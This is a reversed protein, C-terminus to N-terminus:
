MMVQVEGHFGLRSDAELLPIMARFIRQQDHVIVTMEALHSKDNEVYLRRRLEFFHLLNLTGQFQYLLLKAIGFDRKRDGAYKAELPLLEEM